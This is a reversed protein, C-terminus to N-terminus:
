KGVLEVFFKFLDNLMQLYELSPYNKWDRSHWSFCTRKRQTKVITNFKRQEMTTELYYGVQICSKEESIRM